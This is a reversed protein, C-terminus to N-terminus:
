AKMSELVNTFAAILRDREPKTSPRPAANFTQGHESMLDLLFVAVYLRFLRNDAHGAIRMWADVYTTREGSALLAALTLAIVYRPDGFGLDDVDVIGSFNGGPTIIVNKTTTDHLFPIAPQLDLEPRLVEVLHAVTDVMTTDFLTVATMRHRSRALNADLVASWTRYPANEADVAYGYRCTAPLRSVIMQAAAVRAAIAEHATDSLERIVHGLDTGPLRELVLHPFTHDLPASLIAPLPAGLPRLRASLRAAGAISPRDAPNAIRVVVPARDAFEAEFVYHKSGTLFRRVATPRRGTAAVALDAALMADPKPIVNPCIQDTNHTTDM